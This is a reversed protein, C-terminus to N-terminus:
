STLQVVELKVLRLHERGVRGSARQSQTVEVTALVRANLAAQVDSVLDEDIGGTVERGDDLLLYFLRRKTRMGDLQGVYQRRSTMEVLASLSDDLVVAQDRSLTSRLSERGPAQLRFAVGPLGKARRVLKEVALRVAPSQGLIADLSRDDEANEPLVQVLENLAREVLTVADPVPLQDATGAARPVELVITRGFQAAQVLAARDTDGRRLQTVSESPERLGRAIIATAEQLGATVDSAAMADLGGTGDVDVVLRAPGSEAPAIQSWVADIGADSIMDVLASGSTAAKAARRLERLDQLPDTTM